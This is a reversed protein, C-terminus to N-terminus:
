EDRLTIAPDVHAARRAPVYSALLAVGITALAAVALTAGDSASVDFLLSALFRTVAVTAALGLAVGVIALRVGGAVISATLHNPAAGLAVRIGIERTRLSVVYSVVGYIGFAALLTAFAGFASLLEMSARRIGVLEAALSEMTRMRDIPQARDVSWVAHEIARAALQPDGTTKVVVGFFPWYVQSLPRYIEPQPDAALGEHRVDGVVGVIQATSAAPGGEIVVTRGVPNEGPWRMRALTANIVAVDVADGRDGPTFARGQLLAISMTAFYQPSVVRFHVVRQRTTDRDGPVVLRRRADMGTLPVANTAAAAQVGPVARLAGLVQDVYTSTRAVGDYRNAPLQLVFVLRHDTAIGLPRANLKVFSEVLLGATAVFLLSVAVQLVVIAGRLRAAIRRNTGARGGSRLEEHSTDRTTVAILGGFGVGVAVALLASMVIEPWSLGGSDLPLTGLQGQFMRPLAEVVFVALTLGLITSAITLVLGQAVFQRLLRVASGGLARRVAVERRVTSAHALILSAINAVAILLMLFVAAQLIWLVPGAPGLYVDRLPQLAVRVREGTSAAASAAIASLEHEAASATVGPELRAVVNFAHLSHNQALETPFALPTWVDIGADPHAFQPPMVGVVTYPAGDLEITKGIIATTSGFASQWLHHSLVVVRGGGPADDTAVFTRGLAPRAGLLSFFNTSFQWGRLAIPHEAGTLTYQADWSFGVDAFVRRASRWATLEAGTAKDNRAHEVDHHWVVVLRDADRYPLPRFFARDVLTFIAATGAIGLALTILSILSFGPRRRLVRAAYRVDQAVSDLWRSGRAERSESANHDRNWRDGLRRLEEPM